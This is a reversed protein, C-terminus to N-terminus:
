APKGKLWCMFSLRVVLVSVSVQFCPEAPTLTIGGSIELRPWRSQVTFQLVLSLVRISWALLIDDM